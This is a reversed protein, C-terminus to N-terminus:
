DDIDQTCVSDVNRNDGICIDEIDRTCSTDIDGTHSGIHLNDVEEGVTGSITARKQPLKRKKPTFDAPYNNPRKFHV